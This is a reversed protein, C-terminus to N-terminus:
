SFSDIMGMLFEKASSRKSKFFGFLVGIVSSSLLVIVLLIYDVASLIHTAM